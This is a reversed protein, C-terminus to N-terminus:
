TCPGAPYVDGNPSPVSFQKPQGSEPYWWVSGRGAFWEGTSDSVFVRQNGLGASASVPGPNPLTEAQGPQALRWLQQKSDAVYVRHLGDTGQPWVLDDPTSELWQTAQGTALDLRM